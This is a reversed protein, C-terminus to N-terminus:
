LCFLGRAGGAHGGCGHRPERGGQEQVVRVRAASVQRVAAVGRAHLRPKGGPDRCVQGQAVGCCCPVNPCSHQPSGQLAYIGPVWGPGAWGPGMWDRGRRLVAARVGGRVALGLGLPRAGRSSPRPTASGGTCSLSTSSPPSWASPAPSPSRSPWWRAPLWRWTTGALPQPTPPLLPPPPRLLARATCMCPISRM